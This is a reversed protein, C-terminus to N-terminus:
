QHCLCTSGFSRSSHGSEVASGAALTATLHKISAWCQWGSGSRSVIRIHTAFAENQLAAADEILHIRYIAALELFPDMDACQGYLHVPMIGRLKRGTKRHVPPADEGKVVYDRAILKAVSDADLCFTKPDIDAFVPRVGLRAICGATAFFTFSPVIVDDEPGLGLAMGALVIADTGSSVAISGKVGTLETM